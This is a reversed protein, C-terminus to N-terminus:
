AGAYMRGPNLVGKPDFSEKLRRSIAALGPELPEFVQASARVSPDARLLLAHGRGALASRVAWEEAAKAPMRVWLLGGAWDFFIEANTASRIAAAVRPAESPVTSIRWVPSQTGDAFPAADRVARWFSRCDRANLKGLTGFPALLQQLKEKRYAISVPIGELRLATVSKGASAVPIISLTRAVDEPLHAAGSVECSSGMAVSMAEVARTEDLGLVLVSEAAESRPLVKITAQTIVALTGWSGALFKPLDYGTVNKVVRGGAKFSEGRGSVAQLGLAFDRLAGSKIRRPGSLNVALTGGLTGKGPKGGLLPACDMPEFALEQEHKALAKEIEALPTGAKASLILEEPEYLEIGSLRSLDLTMDTQAARGIARKTGQGVVEITKEEAIARAIAERVDQEDRAKLIDAM